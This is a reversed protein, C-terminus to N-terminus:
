QLFSTLLIKWYSFFFTPWTWELKRRGMFYREWYLYGLLPPTILPLFRTMTDNSFYINRDGFKFRTGLEVMHAVQFTTRYIRSYISEIIVTVCM